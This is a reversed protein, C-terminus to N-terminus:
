FDRTQKNDTNASDFMDPMEGGTRVYDEEIDAMVEDHRVEISLEKKNASEEILDAVERDNAQAENELLRMLHDDIKESDITVSNWCHRKITKLYMEDKWGEVKIKGDIVNKKQKEDYVWNDKEGGWFEAAANKPKRKEIQDSNLVVLKNKEPNENFVMYYFGGELEGRNFDNTIEFEYNEITNNLNKKISNFRDTSYKLEFIVDDPVELGYKKAKLELGKYEETLEIDYQNTKSNTYPILAIHNKQLPDLGISSYAVVDLALKKMNINNWSYELTNKPKYRKAEAQRLVLDLKIFYNQILKKQFRTLEFAQGDIGNPLEKIVADLFRESQSVAKKTVQMEAKKQTMIINSKYIEGKKFVPKSTIEM